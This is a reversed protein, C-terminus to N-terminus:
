RKGRDDYSEMLRQAIAQISYAEFERSPKREGIHQKFAQWIHVAEHVLMANVQMISHKKTVRLAVICCQSGQPNELHHVTADCYSNKLWAGREPKPIHCDKMAQHFEKESLVLALHPGVILSRDLWKTEIIKEM